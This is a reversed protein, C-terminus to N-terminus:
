QLYSEKKKQSNKQSNKELKQIPNKGFAFSGGFFYYYYLLIFDVVIFLTGV